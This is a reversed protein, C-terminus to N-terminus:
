RVLNKRGDAPVLHGDLSGNGGRDAVPEAADVDRKALFQVEIGAEPGALRVLTHPGPIVVDVNDDDALIELIEVGADFEPFSGGLGQM